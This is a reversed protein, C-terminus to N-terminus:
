SQSPPILPQVDPVPTELVAVVKAWPAMRAATVCLVWAWLQHAFLVGPTCGRGGRGM